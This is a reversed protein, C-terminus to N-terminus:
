GNVVATKCGFCRLATQCSRRIRRQMASDSVRLQGFRKQFAESVSQCYGYKAYFPLFCASNLYLKLFKFIVISFGYSWACIPPTLKTRSIPTVKGRFLPPLKSRDLPTQKLPIELRIEPMRAVVASWHGTVSRFAESVSRFHKSLLRLQGLIPLLSASCM